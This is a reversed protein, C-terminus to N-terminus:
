IGFDFSPNEVIKKPPVAISRKQIPQFNDDVPTFYIRSAEEIQDYISRVKVPCNLTTYGVNLARKTGYKKLWDSKNKAWVSQLQPVPLLYCTGASLIVYAIYDSFLKKEVWGLSGSKDVSVYELLIDAYNVKRVIEDIYIEKGSSQIITRDCVHRSLVNEKGCYMGSNNPFAQDYIEKWFPQAAAKRSYILDEVFNNAM